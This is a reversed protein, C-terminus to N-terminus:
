RFVLGPNIAPDFPIAIEKQNLLYKEIKYGNEFKVIEAPNVSIKIQNKIWWDDKMYLNDPPPPAIILFTVPEKKFSIANKKYKKQAYLMAYKAEYALVNPSYVFYGFNDEPMVYVKAVMKYLFKWSYINKGIFYNASKTDQLATRINLLLVFLFLAIFFIKYKSTVFSSFILFVLPFLPFLYFYLLPGTNILSLVFFGVYFYLFSLCVEKYKNNKIQVYIFFLCTLFLVLNRYNPDQRIIEVSSFMLKLRDILLFYYNPHDRGPSVIYKVVLHSLIFNHRLDFVIFNILPLIILFLFLITRKNGFKISEFLIYLSVLIFFPIGVAMQFQIIAGCTIINAILFRERRTRLYKIFFYFFLPVLFLAGHPNYLEKAHFILYVSTMLVFFYATLEDFLDKAIYFNLILFGVILMIWYWGVVIPNGGGLLYAPYNLYTWLPGHFLGTSSSPGILVVKKQRLEELLFFDRAVETSLVIDKHLVYWSSLVLNFVVILFFLVKLIKKM